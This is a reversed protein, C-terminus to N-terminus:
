KTGGKGIGSERFVDVIDAFSPRESPNDRWCRTVIKKIVPHIHDPLYPREGDIVVGYATLPIDELPIKGTVVEFCTMGFSYIDAKQTFSQQKVNHKQVGRLIEPARWYGTGMVGLSCEYDAVACHFNDNAPVFTTGPIDKYRVILVNSAKLDRHVIKNKHLEKMGEAINLLINGVEEDTFPPCQHGNQKMRTDILTRLDGWDGWMEFAFRGDKLLIGGKVNKIAYHEFGFGSYDSRHLMGQPFQHQLYKLSNGEKFVKLVYGERIKGDYARVANYIEAQAGEAIKEKLEWFHGRDVFFTGWRKKLSEFVEKNAESTGEPESLVSWHVRSKDINASDGSQQMLSRIQTCPSSKSSLSSDDCDAVASAPISEVTIRPCPSTAADGCIRRGLISLCALISSIWGFFSVRATECKFGWATATSHLLPQAGEYFDSSSGEMKFDHKGPSQQHIHM